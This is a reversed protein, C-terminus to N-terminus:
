VLNVLCTTNVPEKVISVEVFDSELLHSACIKGDYCESSIHSCAIYDKECISCITKKSIGTISLGKYIGSNIQQRLRLDELYGDVWLGVPRDEVNCWGVITPKHELFIAIPYKNKPPPISFALNYSEVLHKNSVRINNVHSDNVQLGNILSTLGDPTKLVLNNINIHNITGKETRTMLSQLFNSALTGIVTSTVGTFFAVIPDSLWERIGKKFLYEVPKGDDPMLKVDYGERRLFKILLIADRDVLKRNPFLSEYPNFTEITVIPKMM